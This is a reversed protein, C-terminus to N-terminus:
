GKLNRNDSRGRAANLWVDVRERSVARPVVEQILQNNPHRQATSTMSNIITMGEKIAGVVDSPAAAAVAGGVFLPSDSLVKWEEATFDKKSTM